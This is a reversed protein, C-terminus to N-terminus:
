DYLAYFAKMGFIRLWLIVPNMHLMKSIQLFSFKGKMKEIFGAYAEWMELGSLKGYVRSQYLYLAYGKPNRLLLSEGQATLGDPLYNCIMIIENFFRLKLGNYAIKDWVVCETVFTEGEFEPFPYARLVSTYFVEAKDGTIGLDGRQLSTADIIDADNSKGIAETKSYGKQGCVGAFGSKMNEPISREIRDISELADDTIYDDSDVIYFLLGKAEKVGCNIARHKGGNPTKIYRIPFDNEEMLFAEFKEETDDVSGDDVVVWEFNRYTQRQLSHYLKEILYGRNYAPTFVTIRVSEAHQHM